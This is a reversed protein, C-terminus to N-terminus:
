RKLKTNIQYLNNSINLLVRVVGWSFLSSLLVAVGGLIWGLAEDGYSDFSSFFLVVAVIIGITLLIGNLIRLFNEAGYDIGINVLSLDSTMRKIEEYEEDTFMEFATEDKTEKKKVHVDM